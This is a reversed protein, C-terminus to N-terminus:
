FQYYVSFAFTQNHQGALLYSYDHYTRKRVPLFDGEFRLSAGIYNYFLYNLGLIGSFAFRAFHPAGVNIYGNVKEVNTTKLLAGFAPGAELEFGKFFRWKAVLPIQAYMLQLVYHDRIYGIINGYEDFRPTHKCGKMIFNLELQLLWKGSRSVPYNVFGGVYGGFKKFGQFPFGDGTIQSGTFGGRVGGHFNSEGKKIGEPETPNFRGEQACLSVFFFLTLFFSINKKMTNKKLIEIYAKIWSLRL